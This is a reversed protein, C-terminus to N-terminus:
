KTAGCTFPAGVMPYHQLTNSTETTATQVLKGEFARQLISQRLRTARQLNTNVVEGIEEVVSLRREVEAVIRQQEASPPLFVPCPKVDGINVGKVAVGRAVRNFYNQTDESRLFWAVYRRDIKGNIDLRATDQTINGGELEAPVEAVRGYTGRIALLLDGAKLSARAYQDAIERSTRHLAQVDIRDGKMDKVKVYLVGDNVNEKPMLIGYCIVRNASTLQELSAVTWGVPLEPLNTTNPEAPEKYKGKGNWSKRRQTLIRDLLQAGTEYGAQRARGAAIERRIWKRGFGTKLWKERAVAEERSSYEEYHVILVPKHKSTWDAAQGALHEEWRKQLDQTQGIYISDNDCRLAYVFFVGPRPAPLARGEQRALEAETPVLKGECAAKLVAARYRKLNAQVRRLGAVGTELRTFQKEIEAVIERQKDLSNPLWTQFASIQDFDVRPRDGTNLHTAFSVFDQANLRYRLFDADIRDNEPLVIFESSCLGERDARWVKNLYPRLRAYIVDRTHFRQATSRM